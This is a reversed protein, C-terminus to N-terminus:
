FGSGPLKLFELEEQTSERGLAQNRHPYRGFREIIEKHKREYDLAEENGLKEYLQMAEKHVELNESHMYPLYFFQRQVPPVQQDAGTSVANQALSLALPDQAFARAKGRYLQRSFQDLVIVEALRGETTGRWDELLGQSAREHTESFRARIKEDFEPSGGFWDTFGHEDFWFRLVDQPTM